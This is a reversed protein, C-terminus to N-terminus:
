KWGGEYNKIEQKVKYYLERTARIDELSDHADLPIYFKECLTSLKQNYTPEIVGMHQLLAIGKFLCTPRKFYSWMYDHGMRKFLAILINIDFDVNYGVVHLKDNRDYRSVHEDLFEIFAGFVKSESDFTNLEEMTRGTINLAEQTISAGDFPKVYKNFEYVEGNVELICSLQTIGCKETDLGTTETDIFITKKM